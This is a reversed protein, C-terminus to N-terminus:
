ILYDLIVYNLLLLDETTRPSLAEFHLNNLHFFEIHSILGEVKWGKLDGIILVGRDGRVETPSKAEKCVEPTLLLSIRWILFVNVGWM